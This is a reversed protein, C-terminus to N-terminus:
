KGGVIILIDLNKEDITLEEIEPLTSVEGKMLQALQKATESKNGHIDVVLSKDYNGKANRKKLLTITNIKTTLENEVAVIEASRSAHTTGNLIGVKIPSQPSPLPQNQGMQVPAVEIIKNTSPRFLIAKNSKSYIAVKDGNKANAFFQQGKLKNTDLVTVVVPEEKKPLEMLRALPITVASAEEKEALTPNNLLLETKKYRSYFYISTIVLIAFISGAGVSILLNIKNKNTM